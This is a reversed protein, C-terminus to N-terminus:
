KYIKSKERFFPNSGRQKNEEYLPNSNVGSSKLNRSKWYRYSATGGSVSLAFVVLAAIVIAAIVGGTLPAVITVLCFPSQEGVPACYGCIDISTDPLQQYFCGNSPGASGPAAPNCQAVYCDGQKNPDKERLIPGCDIGASQCGNLSNCSSTECL